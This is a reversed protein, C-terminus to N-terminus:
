RTDKFFSSKNPRLDDEIPEFIKGFSLVLLCLAILSTLGLESFGIRDNLSFASCICLTVAFIAETKYLAGFFGIERLCIACIFLYTTKDLNDSAASLFGITGLSVNSQIANLTEVILAFSALGPLLKNIFLLIADGVDSEDKEDTVVGLNPPAILAAFLIGWGLILHSNQELAIMSEVSVGSSSVLLLKSLQGIIFASSATILTIRYSFVQIKQKFTVMEEDPLYPERRMQQLLNGRTHIHHQSCASPHDVQSITPVTRKSTKGVLAVFGEVRCVLLPLWISIWIM